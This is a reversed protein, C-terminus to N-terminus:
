SVEIVRDSEESSVGSRAIRREDGLEDARVDLPDDPVLEVRAVGIRGDKEAIERGAEDLKQVM